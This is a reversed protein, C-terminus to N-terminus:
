RSHGAAVSYAPVSPRKASAIQYAVNAGCLHRADWPARQRLSSLAISWPASAVLGGWRLAPLTQDFQSRHKQGPCAFARKAKHNACNEGIAELAHLGHSLVRSYTNSRRAVLGGWRLAVFSQPAPAGLPGRACWVRPPLRPRDPEIGTTKERPFPLDGTFCHPRGSADSSHSHPHRRTCNWNELKSGTQTRQRQHLTSKRCRCARRLTDHYACQRHTKNNCCSLDLVLRM